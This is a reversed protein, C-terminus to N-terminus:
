SYLTHVSAGRTGIQRAREALLVQRRIEWQQLERDAGGQAAQIRGLAQERLGASIWRGDYTMLGWQEMLLGKLQLWRGAIIQKNM